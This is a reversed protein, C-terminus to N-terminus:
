LLPNYKRLRKGHVSLSHPTIIHTYCLLLNLNPNRVKHLSCNTAADQESHEFM